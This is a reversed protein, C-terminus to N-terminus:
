DGMTPVAGKNGQSMKDQVKKVQGSNKQEENRKTAEEDRRQANFIRTVWKDDRKMPSNAFGSFGKMKFPTSM